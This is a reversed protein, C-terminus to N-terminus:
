KSAWKMRGLYNLISTSFMLGTLNNYVIHNEGMSKWKDQIQGVAPYAKYHDLIAKAKSLNIAPELTVENYCEWKIQYKYDSDNAGNM